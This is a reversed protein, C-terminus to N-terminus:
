AKTPLMLHTYSVAGTTLRVGDDSGEILGDNTVTTFLDNTFDTADVAVRGTTVISAGLLNNVTVNNSDIDIARTRDNAAFGFPADPGTANIFGQNTIVINDATVSIAPVFAATAIHNLTVDEFTLDADATDLAILSIVGGGEITIDGDIVANVSVPLTSITTITQGILAADFEITNSGGAANSDLIAQRLSGAGSDNTNIVTFITM